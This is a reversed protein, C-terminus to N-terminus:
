AEKLSDNIGKKIYEKSTKEVDKRFSEEITQKNNEWFNSFDSLIDTNEETKVNDTSKINEEIEKYVINFTLFNDTINRMSSWNISKKMAKSIDTITIRIIPLDENQYKELMSLIDSQLENIDKNKASITLDKQTRQKIKHIQLDINKNNDIEVITYGRDLKCEEDAFGRRILSGGYYQKRGSTDTLGDKSHVWGRTHIHGMLTYDWGMEFIDETIIIERPELETHLMQGVNTDFCSGHTVLINVQESNFGTEKIKNFTEKQEDQSQHSVFWFKVNDIELIDLNNETAYIKSVPSNIAMVASYDNKIDSTDHNGTIIYVPINNVSLRELQEKTKVITTISPKPSHFLDGGIIVADVEKEIFNDICEQFALYGDNERVNIYEDNIKNGTKYGLHCDSIYGIRLM